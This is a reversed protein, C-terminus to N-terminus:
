YDEGREKRKLAILMQYVTSLDEPEADQAADFLLRLEKGEFIKQAISATDDNLYYKKEDEREEGTMIYDLSVNFYDAIKQMVDMKPKSRGSKWNSLTTQSIGTEKSLKYSSIGRSQLLKVFIEYM